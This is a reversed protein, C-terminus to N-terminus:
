LAFTEFILEREQKGSKEAQIDSVKNSGTKMKIMCKYKSKM